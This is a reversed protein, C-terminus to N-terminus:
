TCGLAHGNMAWLLIPKDAKQADIVGEWYTTRWPINTWKLEAPKPLVHAKISDYTKDTLDQAWATGVLLVFLMRGMGRLM